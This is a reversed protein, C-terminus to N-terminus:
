AQAGPLAHRLLELVRRQGRADLALRLGLDVRQLAVPRRELASRIDISAALVLTAAVGAGILTRVFRELPRRASGARSHVSAPSAAKMRTRMANKKTRSSISASGAKWCVPTRLKTKVFSQTGDCFANPARGSSTPVSMVEPMASSM